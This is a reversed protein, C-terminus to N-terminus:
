KGEKAEPKPRTALWSAGGLAVGIPIGLAVNGMAAGIAIGIAIGVGMPLAAKGKTM